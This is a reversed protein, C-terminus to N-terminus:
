VKYYNYGYKLKVVLAEKLAKYIQNSVGGNQMKATTQNFFEAYYTIFDLNDTSFDNKVEEIVFPQSQNYFELFEDEKFPRCLSFDFDSKRTKFDYDM